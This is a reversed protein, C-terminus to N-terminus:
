KGAKPRKAGYRSRGQRRKDVGTADYKGRVVTYNVGIDKVRGGRVLVVSHEQLTHGMGPIYATIEQGNTLRVRAIKRIASNPKRPTKTTVRTCVGRKFPSNYENPHNKISNFGSRLAGTKSRSSPNKRAKKTLQNITSM